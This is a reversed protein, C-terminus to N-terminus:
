ESSLKQLYEILQDNLREIQLVSTHNREVKTEDDKSKSFLNSLVSKNSKVQAIQRNMRGVESELNPIIQCELELRLKTSGSQICNSLEDKASELREVLKQLEEEDPIGKNKHRDGTRNIHVLNRIGAMSAPVIDRHYSDGIMVYEEAPYKAQLHRFMNEDKHTCIETPLDLLDLHAVKKMQETHDGLTFIVVQGYQQMQRVRDISDENLADYNQNYVSLGMEYVEYLFGETLDLSKGNVLFAEVVFNTLSIAFDDKTYYRKEFNYVHKDLLSKLVNDNMVIKKKSLAVVKDIIEQYFRACMCVTDDLDCFITLRKPQKTALERVIDRVRNAVSRKDDYDNKIVYSFKEYGDLSTESPHDRIKIMKEEDNESERQLQDRNRNPADVKFTFGGNNIVWEVENPFRLDTIIFREIGRDHYMRIWTELTNIWIGEGYKTRGEETGRLQLIRRTSEDKKIFVKEYPVDDKTCVNVKLQDAMAMILTPKKPLMSLFLKEAIYNKGTGLKGSFGYLEINPLRSM